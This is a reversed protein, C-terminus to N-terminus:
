AAFASLGQTLLSRRALYLNALAVHAKTRVDNKATRHYSFQRYGFLNKTVHFQYRVIARVEARQRAHLDHMAKSPGEPKGEQRAELRHV